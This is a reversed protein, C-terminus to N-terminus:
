KNRELELRYIILSEDAELQLDVATEKEIKASSNNNLPIEKHTNMDFISLRAKDSDSADIKFTWNGQPLAFNFLKLPKNKSLTTGLRDSSDFTTINKSKSSLIYGPIEIKDKKRQIGVAGDDKRIWMESQFPYPDKGEFTILLYKDYFEPIQLLQADGPFNDQIGGGAWGMIIVDPRQSLVYRGDGHDHALWHKGTNKPPPTHAIHYDNLGLMDIAPLKSYYPLAGAADVAILAHDGFAKRLFKGIVKGNGIWEISQTYIVKTHPSNIQIFFSCVLCIIFILFIKKTGVSNNKTIFHIGQGLIFCSLLVLPIFFRFAPFIDGGVIIIYFTWLLLLFILFNVSFREKPERSLRWGFYLTPILLFLNYFFGKAFYGLGSHLTKLSSPSKVFATNPFWEGYYWLRFALHSLYFLIPLSLFSLLVSVNKQNKSFFIDSYFIITVAFGFAFLIGDPRTLCLLAILFSPFLINFPTVSDYRFFGIFAAISWSLLAAELPTELGAIAYIPISLTAAYAISAIFCPLYSGCISPRYTYIIALIATGTFIIGLLRATLVLDSHFYGFLSILLVWLFNSYGETWENDNWTLGKGEIFRQAYRLSIFSDDTFFPLFYYAYVGVFALSVAFVILILKLEKISTNM